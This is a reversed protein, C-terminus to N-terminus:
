GKSAKSDVQKKAIMKKVEKVMYINEKLDKFFQTLADSPSQVQEPFTSAIFDRIFKDDAFRGDAPSTNKSAYEVFSKGVRRYEESERIADPSLTPSNSAQPEGPESKNPRSNTSQFLVQTYIRNILRYPNINQGISELREKATKVAEEFDDTPLKLDKYINEIFSLGNIAPKSGLAAFCLEILRFDCAFAYDESLRDKFLDYIPKALIITNFRNKGKGNAVEQLKLILTILITSIGDRSTKVQALLKELVPISSRYKPLNEGFAKLIFQSVLEALSDSDLNQLAKVGVEEPSKNSAVYIVVTTVKEVLDADVKTSDAAQLVSKLENGEPSELPSVDSNFEELAEPDELGKLSNQIATFDIKADRVLQKMRADSIKSKVKESLETLYSLYDSLGSKGYIDFNVNSPVYIAEDSTIKLVKKLNLQVKDFSELYGTINFNQKNSGSLEGVFENFNYPDNLSPLMKALIINTVSSIISYCTAIATLDNINKAEEDTLKTSSSNGSINNKILQLMLPYYKSFDDSTEPPKINIKNLTEKNEIFGKICSQMIVGQLKKDLFVDYPVDLLKKLFQKPRTLVESIGSIISDVGYFNLISPMLVKTIGESSFRSNVDGVSVKVEPLVKHLSYPTVTLTNIYDDVSSGRLESVKGDVGKSFFSRSSVVSFRNFLHLAVEASMLDPVQEKIKMLFSVTFYVNVGYESTPDPGTMPKYHIKTEVVSDLFEGAPTGELSYYFGYSSVLSVLASYFESFKSPDINDLDTNDSDKNKNKLQSITELVKKNYSKLTHIFRKTFENEDVKLINDRINDDTKLLNIILQVLKGDPFSNNFSSNENSSISLYTYQKKLTSLIKNSPNKIIALFDRIDRVKNELLIKSFYNIVIEKFNDLIKNKAASASKLSDLIGQEDTISDDRSFESNQITVDFSNWLTTVLSLPSVDTDGWFGGTMKKEMHSLTLRIPKLSPSSTTQSSIDEDGFPFEEAEKFLIM